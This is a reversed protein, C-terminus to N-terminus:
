FLKSILGVVLAAPIFIIVAWAIICLVFEVLSFAGSFLAFTYTDKLERMNTVKGQPSVLDGV